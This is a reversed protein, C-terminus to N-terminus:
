AGKRNASLFRARANLAGGEPIKSIVRTKGDLRAAIALLTRDYDETERQNGSQGGKERLALLRNRLVLIPDDKPMNAGSVLDVLASAVKEPDEAHAVAFAALVGVKCIGHVRGGGLAPRLAAFGGAYASMTSRLAHVTQRAVDGTTMKHVVRAVGAELNSIKEESTINHQDRASRARGGDTVDRAEPSLGRAVLIKVTVGSREIAMLRHQGNTLAGDTAIGIADTTLVYRGARFEAALADVHAKSVSRNHTNHKLLRRAEDPGVTELKVTNM